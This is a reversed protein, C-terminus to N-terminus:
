RLEKIRIYAKRGNQSLKIPATLEYKTNPCGAIISAYLFTWDGKEEDIKGDVVIPKLIKSLRKLISKNSCDQLLMKFNSELDKTVTALDEVSLPPACTYSQGNITHAEITDNKNNCVIWLDWRKQGESIPSWSNRKQYNGMKGNISIWIGGREIQNKRSNDKTKISLTIDCNKSNISTKFDREWDPIIACNANSNLPGKISLAKTIKVPTHEPNDWIVRFTSPITDEYCLFLEGTKNDFSLENKTGVNIIEKILGLPVNRVTGNDCKAQCEVKWQNESQTFIASYVPKQCSDDGEDDTKSCTRLSFILAILVFVGFFIKRWPIDSSMKSVRIKPSHCAECETTFDNGEFEHQCENCTYKM